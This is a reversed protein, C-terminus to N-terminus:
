VPGHVRVLTVAERWVGDTTSDPEVISKIKALERPIDEREWYQNESKTSRSNARIPNSPLGIVLDNIMVIEGLTGDKSIIILDFEEDYGYKWSSKKNKSRIKSESVYDQLVRYLNSGQLENKQSDVM